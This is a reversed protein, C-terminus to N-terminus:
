VLEYKEKYYRQGEASKLYTDKMEAASKGYNKRMAMKVKKTKKADLDALVEEITEAKELTVVEPTAVLKVGGGKTLGMMKRLAKPLTIQGHQNITLNAHIETGAMKDKRIVIINQIVNENQILYLM